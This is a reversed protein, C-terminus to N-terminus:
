GGSGGARLAVGHRRGVGCGAWFVGGLGSFQTLRPDPGAKVNEAPAPKLGAAVTRPNIGLEQRPQALSAKSRETAARVAHTSTASGHHVQGAFSGKMGVFSDCCCGM